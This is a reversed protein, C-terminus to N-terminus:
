LRSPETPITICQPAPTRNGTSVIMIEGGCRRYRSHPDELNRQTGPSNRLTNFRCSNSPPREGPHCSNHFQVKVGGCAKMCHLSILVLFLKVEKAKKVYNEQPSMPHQPFGNSFYHEFHIHSDHKAIYPSTLLGLYSSVDHM